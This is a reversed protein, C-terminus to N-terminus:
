RMRRGQAVRAGVGALGLGLLGLMWASLAPAPVQSGNGNGNGYVHADAVIRNTTTDLLEIAGDRPGAVTPSFTVDVTCTDGVAYAHASGNTTCTGTGADAYDLGSAGQTLAAVSVGSGAVTFQFTITQTVSSGINVTGFGPVPVSPGMMLVRNNGSDAIYVNGSGDVAVGFPNNLGSVVVSQTYSDDALTEKLVRSNFTDAIYVNGGGDVAVGFPVNLGNAGNAVDSGRTYDASGNPVYKHVAYNGSDAIFVNGSGDVAVGTPDNLGSVVVSQTYSGDALTEKLVRNNRNDTIYVNGSGDVAVCEPGALGSGAVVSQTYSGDALTEKLVRNNIYDAIYVNGSGNVAVGFPDYLGSGAVVSQTYSGDALTEKLVRNNGYDSIYVNGSRDVAVGSPDNLGSGLTITEWSVASQAQVGFSAVMAFLFLWPALTRKGVGRSPPVRRVAPAWESRDTVIGAAVQARAARAFLAIFAAFWEICRHMANGKIATQPVSKGLEFPFLRLVIM